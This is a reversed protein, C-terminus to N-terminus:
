ERLRRHLPDHQFRPVPLDSLVPAASRWPSQDARPPALRAVRARGHARQRGQHSRAHQPVMPPRNRRRGDGRLSARRDTLVEGPPSRGQRQRRQYGDSHRRGPIDTRPALCSPPGEREDIAVILVSSRPNLLQKALKLRREMMALWKSYRYADDSDVYDNNYKWDRAGTNYPPDIYIADIKGEHTYLLVQLAHFNEANIVTHFPRDGGREVKGTSVLGPYIPDRFEAVVVLDDVTRSATQHEGEPDQHRLLDAVRGEDTRRIRAVRWLRRDVSGPKAGREPLFRVKDGRRVPRNPLEVTEPIHREFNLGFARRGSLAEVERKLDAALQPDQTEVQRLLSSM